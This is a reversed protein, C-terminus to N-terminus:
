KESFRIAGPNSGSGRSRYGPVTFVLGCLRVFSQGIKAFTIISRYLPVMRRM